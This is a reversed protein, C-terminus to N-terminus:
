KDLKFVSYNLTFIWQLIENANIYFHTQNVVSIKEKCTEATNNICIDLWLGEGIM